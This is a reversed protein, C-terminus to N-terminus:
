KLFGSVMGLVKQIDNNAEQTSTQEGQPTLANIIQPLVTSIAGYVDQKETQTQTAVQEVDQDNFLSQVQSKAVDDGNASPDVWSQVQSTLGAGRLKDLASQLGGQQQIWSLVLPVVAVLLSQANLGSSAPASNNTNQQSSGGTLSGLVSGLVGGVGSSNNQSSNGLSGLVSGLMGGVGSSSQNNQGGLAQKALTEVISSLNTM